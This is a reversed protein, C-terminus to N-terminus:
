EITFHLDKKARLDINQLRLAEDYFGYPTVTLSDAQRYFKVLNGYIPFESREPMYDSEYDNWAWGNGLPTFKSNDPDILYSLSFKRKLFDYVFQNKFDPHLFTPDGTGIFTVGGNKDESYRLGVLSDGLNKMAAYCTFLKMNSAPVFYKNGQYNYLYQQTEPNYISIGVHASLFNSDGLIYQQAADYAFNTDVKASGFPNADPYIDENKIGTKKTATCASLMFLVIAVFFFLRSYKKM